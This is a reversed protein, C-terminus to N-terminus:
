QVSASKPAPAPTGYEAGPEIWPSLVIPLARSLDFRLGIAFRAFTCRRYSSATCSVSPSTASTRRTNLFRKPRLGLSSRSSKQPVAAIAHSHTRVCRLFWAKPTSRHASVSAQPRSCLRAASLSSCDPRM